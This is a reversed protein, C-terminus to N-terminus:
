RYVALSMKVLQNASRLTSFASNTFKIVGKDFHQLVVTARYTATQTGGGFVLTLLINTLVNKVKTGFSREERMADLEEQMKQAAKSYGASYSELHRAQQAIVDLRTVMQASLKVVESAIATLESKNPTTITANYILGSKKRMVTPIDDWIWIGDKDKQLFAKDGSFVLKEAGNLTNSFIKDINELVEKRIKNLNIEASNWKGTIDAFQKQVEAAMRGHMKHVETLYPGFIKSATDNTAKLGNLIDSAEVKGNFQLTNAGTIKIEAKRPSGSIAKALDLNVKAAAHIKKAHPRSRTVFDAVTKGVKKVGSTLVDMVGEIAYDLGEIAIEPNGKMEQLNELSPAIFRATDGFASLQTEIGLMLYEMSEIGFDKDQSVKDRMTELNSLIGNIREIGECAIQYDHSAELFSELAQEESMALEEETQELVEPAVPIGDDGIVVSDSFGTSQIEEQVFEIMSM